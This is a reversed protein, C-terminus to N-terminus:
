IRKNASGTNNIGGNQRLQQIGVAAKVIAPGVTQFEHWIRQTIRGDLRFMKPPVQFPMEKGFM